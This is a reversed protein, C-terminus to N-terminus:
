IRFDKNKDIYKETIKNYYLVALDPDSGKYKVEGALTVQYHGNLTVSLRKRERSSSAYLVDQEEKWKLLGELDIEHHKM